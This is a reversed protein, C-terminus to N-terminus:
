PTGMSHGALVINSLDIKGFLPHTENVNVAAAYDLSKMLVSGDTNTVWWHTDKEADQNPLNTANYPCRARSALKHNNSPASRSSLFSLLSGM